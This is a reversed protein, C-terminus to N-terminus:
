GNLRENLKKEIDTRRYVQYLRQGQKAGVPTIDCQAFARTVTEKTWPAGLGHAIDDAPAQGALYIAEELYKLVSKLFFETDPDLLKPQDNSTVSPDDPFAPSQQRKKWENIRRWAWDHIKKANEETIDPILPLHINLTYDEGSGRPVPKRFIEVTSKESKNRPDPFEFEGIKEM